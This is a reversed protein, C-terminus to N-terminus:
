GTSRGEMEGEVPTPVGNCGLPEGQRKRGQREYINGGIEQMVLKM